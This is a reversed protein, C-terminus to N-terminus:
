AKNNSPDHTSCAYSNNAFNAETAQHIQASQNVRKRGLIILFGQNESSKKSSYQNTVNSPKGRNHLINQHYDRVHNYINKSTKTNLLNQKRGPSINNIIYEATEFKVLLTNSIEQLRLYKMSMNHCSACSAVKNQSNRGVRLTKM